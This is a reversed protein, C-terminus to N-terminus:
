AEIFRDVDITRDIVYSPTGGAAVFPNHTLNASFGGKSGSQTIGAFPLERIEQPFMM